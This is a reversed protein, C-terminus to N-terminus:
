ATSPPSHLQLYSAPSVIPISRFPHLALLDRDGTIIAKAAASVALELIRDDKPDRCERVSETIDVLTAAQTLRVLFANREEPPVYKDFKKRGLVEQLEQLTERSQLITGAELAHFFARGPLSEEFLLASIIVNTDFVVRHETTM